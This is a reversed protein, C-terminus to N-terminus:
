RLPSAFRLRFGNPDRIIFDRLGYYRDDVEHVITIANDRCRQYIADVDDVMVRLDVAVGRADMSEPANAYLSDHAIMLMAQGLAIVAFETASTLDNDPDARLLKFGLCDVYFRVTEAVDAVFLEPAMAALEREDLPSM